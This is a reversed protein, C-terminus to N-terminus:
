FRGRMGAWIFVFRNGRKFGGRTTEEPWRREAPNEGDKLM